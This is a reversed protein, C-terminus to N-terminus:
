DEIRRLMEGTVKAAQAGPVGHVRVMLLIRPQNAPFLAVTLGDGPAHDGHTCSATGTKVLADPYALARDVGAGTGQEASEEMGIFIQQVGPQDRRRLLELYARAMNLPSISWRDGLGVLAPGSADNPPPEFGFRTAVPSVDAAGLAAALNRFYSNCSHAIASTLDVKGHGRPLWCGTATGRCSHVPYLFNHHEGYALAVFPKVLSGLPIPKEPQDWRSALVSGTQADLLLYSVGSSSFDRSLTQGASQEFLTAANTRRSASESRGAPVLLLLTLVGIALNRVSDM